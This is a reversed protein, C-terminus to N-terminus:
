KKRIQDNGGENEKRSLVMVGIHDNFAQKFDSKDLQATSRSATYIQAKIAALLSVQLIGLTPGEGLQM